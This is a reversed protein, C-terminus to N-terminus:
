YYFTLGLIIDPALRALSAVVVHELLEGLSRVSLQEDIDNLSHRFLLAAFGAVTWAFRVDLAAAVLGFDNPEQALGGLGDGLSAQLAVGAFLLVVVIAAAFVPAVIDTADVAVRQV